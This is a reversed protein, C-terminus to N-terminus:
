KVFLGNKDINLDLMYSSIAEEKPIIQEIRQLDNDTLYVQLAEITSKVQEANRSGVLALIDDGQALVWAIALQALSCNKENAIQQLAQSRAVNRNINEFASSSMRKSMMELKEKPTNGGILGSLLVGFAVVDIGLERATPLLDDEIHRDMMSYRVEVLSISHTDNAKRLIDGNVESIGINKVYGKKVLDAVAGITDEVPINPDIRAPQYLDVYDTGLRRLTYNLFNEVAQPRVDIGYMRGDIGMMMGFKVSIFVDERKCTKLAEGITLESLGNGYFDATNLYNVGQDIAMHIADVTDTTNASIRMGGLGIRSLKDFSSQGNKNDLYKM